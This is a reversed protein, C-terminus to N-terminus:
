IQHNNIQTCAFEIARVVDAAVPDTKALPAHAALAAQIEEKSGLRVTKPLQGHAQILLKCDDTEAKVSVTVAGFQKCTESINSTDFTM